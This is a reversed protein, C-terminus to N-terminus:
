VRYLTLAEHTDLRRLDDPDSTVVFPAGASRACVVVAGDVVDSTGTVACLTGVAFADAPTFAVIVVRDDQLFRALRAQRAGSRWAQAVVVSPVHVTAGARVVETLVARMQETNRDIGILAGTDFVLRGAAERM